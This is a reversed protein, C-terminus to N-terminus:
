NDYSHNGKRVRRLGNEDKLVTWFRGDPSFEVSYHTVRTNWEVDEPIVSERWKWGEIM